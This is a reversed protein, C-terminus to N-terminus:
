TEVSIIIYPSKNRVHFKVHPPKGKGRDWERVHPVGPKTDRREQIEVEVKRVTSIEPFDEPPPSPGIIEGEGEEGLPFICYLGENVNMHDVCFYFTVAVNSVLHTHIRVKMRKRERSTRLAM